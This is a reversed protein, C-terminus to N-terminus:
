MFDDEIADVIAAEDQANDARAVAEAYLDANSRMNDENMLDAYPDVKEKTVNSKRPGNPAKQRQKLENRLDQQYKKFQPLSLTRKAAM